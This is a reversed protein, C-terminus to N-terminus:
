YRNGVIGFGIKRHTRSEKWYSEHRKKSLFEKLEPVKYQSLTESITPRRLYDNNLLWRDLREPNTIKCEYMYAVIYGNGIERGKLHGSLLMEMAYEENINM